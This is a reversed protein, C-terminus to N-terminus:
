TRFFMFIKVFTPIFVHKRVPQFIDWFYLYLQFFYFNFNFRSVAPRPLDKMEELHMDHMRMISKKEEMSVIKGRPRSINELLKTPPGLDKLKTNKIAEDRRNQEAIKLDRRTRRAWFGCPLTKKNKYHKKLGLDSM